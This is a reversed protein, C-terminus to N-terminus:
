FFKKELVVPGIEVLSALFCGQTIPIWFQVFSSSRDNEFPSLLSFTFIYWFISLFRRKLFWQALKLWVQCSVDKPSPSKFNYLQHHDAMELSLYYCFHLFERFIKLFRRRWFWKVLKTWVQYLDDKPSPSELKNLHHGNTM